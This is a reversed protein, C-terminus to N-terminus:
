PSWESDGAGWDRNRDRRNNQAKLEKWDMVSLSSSRFAHMFVLDYIMCMFIVWLIFAYMYVHCFQLLADSTQHGACWDWSLSCLTGMWDYFLRFAWSTMLNTKPTLPAHPHAWLAELNSTPWKWCSLFCFREHRQFTAHIHKRKLM